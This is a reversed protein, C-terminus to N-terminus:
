ILIWERYFFDSVAIILNVDNRAKLISAASTNSAWAEVLTGPKLIKGTKPFTLLAEEWVMPTKKLDTLHSHVDNVFPKLLKDVGAKDDTALGYCHANIEDNGTSVYPGPFYTVVESLLDKVFTTAAPKRIDLHGSPPENAWSYPFFSINDSETSDIQNAKWSVKGM